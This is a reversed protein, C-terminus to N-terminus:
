FRFHIGFQMQRMDAAISTIQGANAEDIYNNPSNLNTHNLANYNEWRFQIAKGEAISFVKDLSLNMIFTLPGVLSNRGTHGDRYLGQPATYAAANFWRSRNPHAVHPDGIRDPRVSNFDAILLPANSVNPTFPM